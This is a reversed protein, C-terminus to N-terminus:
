PTQQDPPYITRGRDMLRIALTPCARATAVLAADDLVASNLVSRPGDATGVLALAGESAAVCRGSGICLDWDIAVQM